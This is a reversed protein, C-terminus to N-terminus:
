CFPSSLLKIIQQHIFVVREGRDEEPFYLYIDAPYALSMNTNIIIKKKILVLIVFLNAKTIFVLLIVEKIGNIKELALSNFIVSSCVREFKCIVGYLDFHKSKKNNTKIVSM